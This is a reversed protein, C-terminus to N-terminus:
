CGFTMIKYIYLLSFMNIQQLPLCQCFVLVTRLAKASNQVSSLWLISCCATKHCFVSLQHFTFLHFHVSCDKRNTLNNKCCITCWAFCDQLILICVPVLILIKNCIYGYWSYVQICIYCWFQLDWKCYVSQLRMSIEEIQKKNM